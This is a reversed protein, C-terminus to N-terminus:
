IDYKKDFTSSSTKGGKSSKKTFNSTCTSNTTM